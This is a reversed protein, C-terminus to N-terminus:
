RRRYKAGMALARMVSSRMGLRVLSLTRVRSRIPAHLSLHAQSKSFTSSQAPATPNPFPSPSSPLLCATLLTEQEPPSPKREKEERQYHDHPSQSLLPNSSSIPNPAILSLRQYINPMESESGKKEKEAHLTLHFPLSNHSPLGPSPSLEMEKSRGKM